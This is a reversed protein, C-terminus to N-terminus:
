EATWFYGNGRGEIPLLSHLVMSGPADKIEPLKMKEKKEVSVKRVNAHEDIPLKELVESRGTLVVLPKDGTLRYRLEGDSHFIRGELDWKHITEEESWSKMEKVDLKERYWWTKKGSTFQQILAELKERTELTLQLQIM